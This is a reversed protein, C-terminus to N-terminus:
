GRKVFLAVRKGIIEVQWQHRRAIWRMTEASYFCVHTPDRHYHWDAFREPAPRLETMVGLCGGAKLMGDLRELERDPHHMHELVETCTIFGYQRQLASDDPAFFPDHVAVDFGRERLMAALAPAQGSGYDLGRAGPPLREIFPDALQSLFHRYGPDHIDNRHTLYYAREAAADLWEDPARFVLDCNECSHYSGTRLSIPAANSPMRCLPCTAPNETANM